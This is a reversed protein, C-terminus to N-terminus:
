EKIQDLGILDCLKAYEEGTILVQFPKQMKGYRVKYIELKRESDSASMMLEIDIIHDVNISGIKEAKFYKGKQNVIVSNYTFFTSCM